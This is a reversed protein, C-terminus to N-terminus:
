RLLNCGITGTVSPTSTGAITQSVRWILPLSVSSFPYPANISGADPYVGIPYATNDVTPIVSSSIVVFWSHSAGDYQEIDFQVTPSGVHATQYLTCVVGRWNTNSQSSTTVTSALRASNTILAGLEKNYPGPNDPTQALAPSTLLLTLLLAIRGLM